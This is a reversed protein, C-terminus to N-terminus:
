EAAKVIKFEYGMARIISNIIDYRSAYMGREIRVLHTRKIGAREAVEQQTLNLENRLERIKAGIIEQDTM